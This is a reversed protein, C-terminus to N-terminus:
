VNGQEETFVGKYYKTGEIAKEMSKISYIKLDDATPCRTDKLVRDLLARNVMFVLQVAVLTQHEAELTRVRKDLNLIEEKLLKNQPATENAKDILRSTLSRLSCLTNSIDECNSEWLGSGYINSEQELDEWLSHDVQVDDVINELPM